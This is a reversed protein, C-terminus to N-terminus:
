LDSSPQIQQEYELIMYIYITNNENKRSIFISAGFLSERWVGLAGFFLDDFKSKTCIWELSSSVEYIPQLKMIGLKM